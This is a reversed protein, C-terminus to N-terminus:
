NGAMQMSRDPEFDMHDQKMTQYGSQNLQDEKIGMKIEEFNAMSKEKTNLPKNRFLANPGLIKGALGDRYRSMHTGYAHSRNM